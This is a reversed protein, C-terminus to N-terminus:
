LSQKTSTGTGGIRGVAASGSIATNDTVNTIGSESIIVVCVGGYGGAGGGGEGDTGTGSHMGGNGGDGGSVDLIDAQTTGIIESTIITISGGAGGGAGGGGGRNGGAPSGGDGGVGGRASIVSPNGNSSVKIKRPTSVGWETDFSEAWTGATIALSNYISTNTNTPIRGSVGMGAIAGSYAAIYLNTNNPTYSM